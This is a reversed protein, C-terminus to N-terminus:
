REHTGTKFMFYLLLEKEYCIYVCGNRERNMLEIQFSEEHLKHM